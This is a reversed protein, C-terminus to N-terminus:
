LATKDSVSKVYRIFLCVTFSIVLLLIGIHEIRSIDRKLVQLSNGGTYGVGVMIIITFIASVGDAILFREPRMRMVGAVLFIQARMGVLHRGFLIVLAGRKNFKDELASIREPSIFRQFREHNVIKRGYRKGVSYLSFDAMLLGLYIIMIAPLPKVVKHSILFGSLILTTDEPFPLGLGGLLLLVFLGLYPSHEFITAAWSQMTEGVFKVM